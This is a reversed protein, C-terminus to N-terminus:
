AWAPSLLDAHNNRVEECIEAAKRHMRIDHTQEIIRTRRASRILPALPTWCLLDIAQSLPRRVAREALNQMMETLRNELNKNLM